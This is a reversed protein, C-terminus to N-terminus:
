ILKLYQVFHGCVFAWMCFPIYYLILNKKETCQVAPGTMLLALILSPPCTPCKHSTCFKPLVTLFSM